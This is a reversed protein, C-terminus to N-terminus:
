AAPVDLVTGFRKRKTVLRAFDGLCNWSQLKRTGFIDESCFQSVRIEDSSILVFRALLPFHDFSLGHNWGM